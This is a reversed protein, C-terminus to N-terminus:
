GGFVSSIIRGGRNIEVRWMGLSAATLADLGCHEAVLQDNISLVIDGRTLNIARAPSRRAVDLIVVGTEPLAMRARRGACAFSQGGLGRCVAFTWRDPSRRSAPDEPATSLALCISDPPWERLCQWGAESGLGRISLRYRLSQEDSVEQGDVSLIIDGAQLGAERAPSGGRVDSVIV